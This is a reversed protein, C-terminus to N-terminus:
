NRFFHNVTDYVTVTQLSLAPLSSPSVKTTMKDDTWGLSLREVTVRKNSMGDPCPTECIAKTSLTGCFLKDIAGCARDAIYTITYPIPLVQAGRSCDYILDLGFDMALKDLAAISAGPGKAKIHLKNGVVSITTTTDGRYTANGAYTVGSPLTLVVEISDTPRLGLPIYTQSISVNVNFPTNGYIQGPITQSSTQCCLIHVVVEVM